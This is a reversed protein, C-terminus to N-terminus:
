EHEFVLLSRTPLGEGLTLPSLPKNQFCDGSARHQGAGAPFPYPPSPSWSLQLEAPTPGAIM